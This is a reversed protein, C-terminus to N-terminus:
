RAAGRAAGRRAACQSSFLLELGSDAPADPAAPDDLMYMSAQAVLRPLPLPPAPCADTAADGSPAGGTGTGGEGGDGDGAAAVPGDAAAVDGGRAGGRDDATAAAAAEPGEAAGGGRDDAVAADAAGPGEAAGGGGSDMGGAADASWVPAEPGEEGEAASNESLDLTSDASMKATRALLTSGFSPFGTLKGDHRTRCSCVCVTCQLM